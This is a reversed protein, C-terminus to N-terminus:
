FVVQRLDTDINVKRGTKKVKKLSTFVGNNMNICNIKGDNAFNVFAYQITGNPTTVVDGREFTNETYKELKKLGYGDFVCSDMGNVSYLELGNENVFKDTITVIFKDGINAM